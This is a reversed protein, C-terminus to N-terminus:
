CYSEDGACTPIGHRVCVTARGSGYLHIVTSALSMSHLAGSRPQDLDHRCLTAAARAIGPPEQPARAEYAVAFPEILLHTRGLHSILEHFM